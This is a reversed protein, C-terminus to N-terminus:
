KRYSITDTESKTLLYYDNISVKYIPENFQFKQLFDNPM